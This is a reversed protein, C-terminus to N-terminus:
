SSMGRSISYFETNSLMCFLDRDRVYQSNQVVFQGQLPILIDFFSTLTLAQPIDPFHLSGRGDAGSM